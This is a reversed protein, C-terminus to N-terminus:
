VLAAVLAPNASFLLDSGIADSVEDLLLHWLKLLLISPSIEFLATAIVAALALVAPSTALAARLKLLSM